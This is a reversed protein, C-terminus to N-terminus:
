GVDTMTELINQSSSPMQVHIIGFEIRRNRFLLSEGLSPSKFYVDGERYNELRTSVKRHLRFYFFSTKRGDM